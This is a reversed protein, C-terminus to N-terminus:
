SPGADESSRHGGRGCCWGAWCADVWTRAGDGPGPRGGGDGDLGRLFYYDELRVPRAPRDGRAAAEAEAGQGGTRWALAGLHQSTPPRWVPIEAPPAAALSPRWGSRRNGGGGTPTRPSIGLRSEVARRALRAEAARQSAEYSPLGTPTPTREPPAYLPELPALVPLPPVISRPSPSAPRSRPSAVPRRVGRPQSFTPAEIATLSDSSVLVAPFVYADEESGAHSPTRESSDKGGWVSRIAQNGIASPLPHASPEPVTLAASLATAM